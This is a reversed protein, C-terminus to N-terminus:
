EIGLLLNKESLVFGYLILLFNLSRKVQLHMTLDRGLDAWDLGIKFLLDLSRLLLEIGHPVLVGLIERIQLSLDGNSLALKCSLFLHTLLMM